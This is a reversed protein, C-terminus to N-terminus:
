EKEVKIQEISSVDDTNKVYLIIRFNEGGANLKGVAYKMPSKGSKHIIRFSKPTHNTFFNKMILKAQNRTCNNIAGLIDLELNDSFWASLKEYDGAQIYKSIPTFVDQSQDQAQIAGISLLAFLFSLLIKKM